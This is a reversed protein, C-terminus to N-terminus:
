KQCRIEGKVFRKEYRILQESSPATEVRKFIVSTMILRALTARYDGNKKGGEVFFTFVLAGMKKM